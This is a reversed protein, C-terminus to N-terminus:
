KQGKKIKNIAKSLQDLMTFTYDDILNAIATADKVTFGADVLIVVEDQTSLHFGDKKSEDLKSNIQDVIKM